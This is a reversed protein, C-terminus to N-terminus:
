SGGFVVLEWNLYSALLLGIRREVRKSESRKREM